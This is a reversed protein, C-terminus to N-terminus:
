VLPPQTPSDLGLAGKSRLGATPTSSATRGWSGSRACRAGRGDGLLVHPGPERGLPGQMAPGARPTGWGTIPRAGGGARPIFDRTHEWCTSPGTVHLDM